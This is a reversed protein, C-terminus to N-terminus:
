PSGNGARHVELLDVAGAQNGWSQRIHGLVAALSTDDLTLQFPPMGFPRPEHATPLGFGGERVMRILNAPSDLTVARNGALAPYALEGSALRLGEGQKGHCSACHQEYVRAGLGDGRATRAVPTPRPVQRAPLDVLYRALARLDDERWHRLSQAVVDAMPGSVRHQGNHGQGLLAVTDAVPQDQAGAEGPDLLSPAYWGSPMLGGSLASSAGLGGWRDRPSHCAACHGLGQALYRGREIGETPAV